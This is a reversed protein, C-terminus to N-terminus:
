ETSPDDATGLDVAITPTELLLFFAVLAGNNKVSLREKLLLLVLRSHIFETIVVRKSPGLNECLFAARHWFRTNDNSSLTSYLCRVRFIDGCLYDSQSLTVAELWVVTLLSRMEM